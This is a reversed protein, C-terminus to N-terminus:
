KMKRQAWYVSQRAGDGGGFGNKNAEEFAALAGKAAPMDVGKGAGTDIM